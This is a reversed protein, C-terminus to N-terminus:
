RKIKRGTVIQHICNERVIHQVKFGRHNLSVLSCIVAIGSTRTIWWHSAFSHSNNDLTIHMFVCKSDTPTLITQICIINCHLIKLNKESYNYLTCLLHCDILLSNHMGWIMPCMGCLIHSANSVFKNHASTALCCNYWHHSAEQLQHKPPFNQKGISMHIESFIWSQMHIKMGNCLVM